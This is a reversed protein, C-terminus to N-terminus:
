EDRGLAKGVLYGGVAGAGATIVGRGINFPSFVGKIWKERGLASALELHAKLLNPAKEALQRKAERQLAAYVGAKESAGVKGAATYAKSWISMKDVLQEATLTKNILSAKLKGAVTKSLPDSQVYKSIVKTFDNGSFKEVTEKAVKSRIAAKGGGTIAPLGGSFMNKVSSTIGPLAGALQATGAIGAGASTGRFIPNDKVDESFSQQLSRAQNSLRERLQNAEKFLAKKKEPNTENVALNEVEKAIEESSKIEPLERSARISTGIDQAVNPAGGLLANAGPIGKVADYLVNGSKKKDINVNKTTLGLKERLAQFGAVAEESTSRATPLLKIANEQEPKSLNGVDGFARALTARSSERADAYTRLPQNGGMASMFGTGLGAIRGKALDDQTGPEGFYLKELQSVIREADDKASQKKAQDTSPQTAQAEAIMSDYYKNILVQQKGETRNWDDMLDRQRSREIEQIKNEPSKQVQPQSYTKNKVLPQVAQKQRQFTSEDGIPPLTPNFTTKNTDAAGYYSKINGVNTGGTKNVDNLIDEQASSGSIVSPMEIMSRYQPYKSVVMNGLMEDDINGYAEPYKQKTLAGLESLKM